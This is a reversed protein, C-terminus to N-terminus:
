PQTAAADGAPVVLAVTCASAVAGTTVAGPETTTSWLRQQPLKPPAEPAVFVVSAPKM